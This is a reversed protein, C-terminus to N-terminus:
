REKRGSLMSKLWKYLPIILGPAFIVICCFPGSIIKNIIDSVMSGPM